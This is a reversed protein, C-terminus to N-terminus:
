KVLGYYGTAVSAGQPTSSISFQGRNIFSIGLVFLILIGAFKKADNM